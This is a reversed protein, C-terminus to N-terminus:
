ECLSVLLVSLTRARLEEIRMDCALPSSTSFSCAPGNRSLMSAPFPYEHFAALARNGGDRCTMCATRFGFNRTDTPRIAAITSSHRDM